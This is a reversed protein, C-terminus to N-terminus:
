GRLQKSLVLFYLDTRSATGDILEGYPFSRTEGTPAYGRRGYWDLIDSRQAIVTMEVAPAGSERALTEAHELLRRGIRANQLEPTVAFMGFYAAAGPTLLLECCGVLVGDATRATLVASGPATIKALAGATDIREDDLLDAETTWGARSSIGRYASRVLAVVADVEDPVAVGFVLPREGGPGTM